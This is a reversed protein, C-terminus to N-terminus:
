AIASAVLVHDSFSYSGDHNRYKASRERVGREIQDQIDQPQDHLSAIVWGAELLVELQSVNVPKKKVQCDVEGYGCERLLEVYVEPTEVDLLAGGPVTEPPLVAGVADAFSGWSPQRSQIPHVVVLRAGPALVRRIEKFAHEPRALHHACYNVVALDFTAEAFPLDEANAVHFDIGPNNQQAEAIMRASFDVGTAASSYEFLQATLVGPGCGVDLVRDTETVGVADRILELQGSQATLNAIHDVYIPAAGEWADHEHKAVKEPEYPTM